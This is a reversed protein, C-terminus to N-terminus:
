HKNENIVFEQDGKKKKEEEETEEERNKGKKKNEVNIINLSNISWKKSWRSVAKKKKMYAYKVTNNSISKPLTESIKM